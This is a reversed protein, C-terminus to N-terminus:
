KKLDNYHQAPHYVSDSIVGNNESAIKNLEELRQKQEPNLIKREKNKPKKNVTMVKGIKNQAAKPSSLGSMLSVPQPQTIGPM